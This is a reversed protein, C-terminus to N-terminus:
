NLSASIEDMILATSLVQPLVKPTRSGPAYYLYMPVGPRNHKRIEATIADDRTTYDAVMFVINNDSFAKQVETKKLTTLKNVQCTACWTATFDVFVGREEGLAEEIANLSWAVSEYDGAYAKVASAAAPSGSLSARVPLLAGGILLLAGCVTGVIKLAGGSTRLAWIGMGILTAGVVTWMVAQVGAQEGLVSLLWAATLFMPFAFFQKLREMWAGPKPLFRHLGPAFSLLLFPLALGLGMMFFVFLVTPAPEAMAAGVAGAIFPGVCPAGVVAALVGTFFAGSKGQKAALGSGVNQVSGGLEIVGLLWLGIVFMVLALLSVVVPFQLQFGLSVLQGASRLALFLGAILLFSLVVGITYWIGHSRLHGADGTTAAQVMGVAKISLVPLVCPMLNLILGGLLALGAIAFLNLGGGGQGAISGASGARGSTGALPTGGVPASVEFALAEAGAREVLIVGDFSDKLKPKYGPTLTLTLGRPGYSVPQPAAHKIENEFPFFRIHDAAEVLDPSALSLTWSTDEAQGVFQAEGEFGTPAKAIWEAILAGNAENIRPSAGVSYSVDFTEREIICVEDCIQYELTGALHVQAGIEADPSVTVSFPLVLRDSYGYNMIENELVVQEHPAPWVFDGVDPTADDAWFIEAPLGSDGANRWYVHWKPAIELDFAVFFTEGAQVTDRESILSVEAQRDGFNQQAYGSSTGWVMLVIALLLNRLIM